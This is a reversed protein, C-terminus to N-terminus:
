EQDREFHLLWGGKGEETTFEVPRKHDTRTLCVKLEDGDREYIGHWSEAVETSWKLKVDLQRPKKSADQKYTGTIFPLLEDRNLYGWNGNKLMVPGALDSRCELKGNALLLMWRDGLESAVPRWAGRLTDDRVASLARAAEDPLRGIKGLAQEARCAV